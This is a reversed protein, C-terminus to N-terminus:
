ATPSSSAGLNPNLSLRLRSSKEMEIRHIPVSTEPTVRIREAIVGAM